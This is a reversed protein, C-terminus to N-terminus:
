SHSPAASTAAPAAQPQEDALASASLLVLALWVADAVLLHTLQLWIPALLVMNLVGLGVQTFFAITLARAFLRVRPSPRVTPVFTALGLLLVGVAVAIFPHLVRLRVFVHATLSLDQAMGEALSRSPFLTDGLATVAGSTGLLLMGALALGLLASVWGQRRLRLAAAGSALFATLVLCALLVFTNVLHMAMSLARMMSKDHSVLRYLVLVAGIVAESMTFVFSLTAFRRVQSGRPYAFFSWVMMVLTFGLILGSSARHSLEVLTKVHPAHPVVVGQCLPWHAGCGDGSFSARVYAGWLIVALTYALVAWSYRAFRTLRVALSNRASGAGGTSGDCASVQGARASEAIASLM